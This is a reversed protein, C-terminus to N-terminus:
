ITTLSGLPLRAASMWIVTMLCPALFLDLVSLLTHHVGVVQHPSLGPGAGPTLSSDNLWQECKFTDRHTKPFYSIWCRGEINDSRFLCYQDSLCLFFVRRTQAETTKRMKDTLEDPSLKLTKKKMRGTRWIQEWIWHWCRRITNWGTRCHHVPSLNVDSWTIFLCTQLM